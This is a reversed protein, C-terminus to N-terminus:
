RVCKKFRVLQIQKTMTIYLVSAYIKVEIKINLFRFLKKKKKIKALIFLYYFRYLMSKFFFDRKRIFTKKGLKNNLPFVITVPLLCGM